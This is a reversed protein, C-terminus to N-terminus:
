INPCIIIVRQHQCHFISQGSSCTSNNYRRQYSLILKTKTEKGFRREIVNLVRSTQVVFEALKADYVVVKLFTIVNLVFRIELHLMHISHANKLNLHVKLVSFGQQVSVQVYNMLYALKTEM